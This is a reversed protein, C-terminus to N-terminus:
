KIKLKAEQKQFFSSVDKYVEEKNTENFMEHRGGQYLKMEVSSIGIKQYLDALKKVGKGNHGVPDEDGSFIYIPLDKRINNINKRKFLNSLGKFFTKYFGTTCVFGCYEDEIYKKVEREDRSLWDFRTKNPKFQKNYSGFSLNDLFKNQKKNNSFVFLTSAVFSGLKFMVDPGNSGSLVVGDILHSYQCLFSQCIFSGMSHGLLFVPLKTEINKRLTALNDVCKQFDEKEFHGLNEKNRESHGINDIAYVNFKLKNLYLAFEEYRESHESMGHCIIISAMPAKIKWEIGSIGKIQFVKM